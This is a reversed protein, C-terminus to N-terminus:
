RETEMQKRYYLDIRGTVLELMESFVRFELETSDTM